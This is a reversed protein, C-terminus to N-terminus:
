WTTTYAGKFTEEVFAKLEDSRYSEVYTAIRPDDKNDERAAIVVVAFQADSSELTLSDDTPSLGAQVAYASNVAAADVDSLSHPLQAAEIEIFRFKKPNEVIDFPSATVTVGEKLKILEAAQLVLLARAGNTPYNPIAITGGEPLEDISDYRNSYVGMLQVVGNGVPVLKYGRMENQSELFPVHQYINIDIDGADLAANPQIFDNFEVLRVELGKEKAVKQVVEGMQAHPGATVGVRLVDDQAHVPSLHVLSVTAVAGDFQLLRRLPSQPM